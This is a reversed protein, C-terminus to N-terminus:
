KHLLLSTFIGVAKGGRGRRVMNGQDKGGGVDRRLGEECDKVMGSM